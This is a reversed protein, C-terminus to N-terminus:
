HVGDNIRYCEALRFASLQLAASAPFAPQRELLALVRWPVGAESRRALEFGCLRRQRRQLVASTAACGNLSTVSAPKRRWGLTCFFDPWTAPVALPGVGRRGPRCLRSRLSRAAGIRAWPSATPSPIASPIESRTRVKGSALLRRLPLQLLKEFLDSQHDAGGGANSGAIGGWRIAMRRWGDRSPM